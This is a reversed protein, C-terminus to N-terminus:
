GGGCGGRLSAPTGDFGYRRRGHAAPVGPEGCQTPLLQAAQQAALSVVHAVGHGGRGGGHGVLGVHRGGGGGVGGVERLESVGGAEHAATYVLGPM